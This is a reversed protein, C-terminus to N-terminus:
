QQDINGMDTILLSVPSGLSKAKATWGDKVKQLHTVNTYNEDTIHKKAAAETMQAPAPATYGEQPAAAWAAGSGIAPACILMSGVVAAIGLKATCHRKM